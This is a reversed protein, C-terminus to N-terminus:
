YHYLQLYLDFSLSVLPLMSRFTVNLINYANDMNLVLIYELPICVARKNVADWCASGMPTDAQPHRYLPTDAQPLTQRHPTLRPSPPRGLPHTQGPPHRRLPPTQGHPHRGPHQRGLPTDAQPTHCDGGPGSASLLGGLM